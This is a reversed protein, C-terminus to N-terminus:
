RARRGCKACRGRDIVLAQNCRCAAGSKLLESAPRIQGRAVLEDLRPWSAGARLQLRELVTV